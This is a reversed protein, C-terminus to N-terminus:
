DPTPLPSFDGTTLPGQEAAPIKTTATNFKPPKPIQKIEEEIKELKGNIDNGPHKEEYVRKSFYYTIIMIAIGSVIHDIGLGILIFCAILVFFAIIDKPYIREIKIRNKEMNFLSNASTM